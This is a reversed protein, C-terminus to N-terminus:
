VISLKNAGSLPFTPLPYNRILQTQAAEEIMWKDPLWERLAMSLLRVNETTLTGEFPDGLQDIRSFYLSSTQLFSLFKALSMYRWLMSSAPPTELMPHTAYM